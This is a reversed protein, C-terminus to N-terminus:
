GHTDRQSECENEGKLHQFNERGVLAKWREKGHPNGIDNESSHSYM